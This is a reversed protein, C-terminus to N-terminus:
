VAYSEEPALQYTGRYSGTFVHCQDNPVKPTVTFNGIEEGSLTEKNLQINVHERGIGVYSWVQLIQDAFSGSGLHAPIVRIDALSFLSEDLRLKSLDIRSYQIVKPGINLGSGADPTVTVETNVMFQQDQAYPHRVRKNAIRRPPSVEFNEISVDKPYACSLLSRILTATDLYSNIFLRQDRTDFYQESM